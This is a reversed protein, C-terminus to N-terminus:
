YPILAKNIKIVSNKTGKLTKVPPLQKEAEGWRWGEEGLSKGLTDMLKANTWASNNEM